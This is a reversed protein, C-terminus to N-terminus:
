GANHAGDEIFKIWLMRTDIHLDQWPAGTPYKEQYAHIAKIELQKVPSDRQTLPTDASM